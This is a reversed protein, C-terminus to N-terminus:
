YNMSFHLGFLKSKQKLLRTCKSSLTFAQTHKELDICKNINILSMFVFPTEEALNGISILQMNSKHLILILSVITGNNDIVTKLYLGFFKVDQLHPEKCSLDYIM